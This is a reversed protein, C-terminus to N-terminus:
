PSAEPNGGLAVVMARLRDRDAELEAREMQAQHLYVFLDLLEQLADLYADRGNWTKLRTGYKRQGFDSRERLVAVLDDLVVRDGVLPPPQHTTSRPRAQFYTKKGDAGWQYCPNGYRHFGGEIEVTINRGPVHWRGCACGVVRTPNAPGPLPPHAVEEAPPEPAEVAAGQDLYRSRPGLKIKDIGM